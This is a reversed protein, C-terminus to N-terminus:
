QQRYWSTNVSNYEYIIAPGVSLTTVSTGVISQGSNPSITLATVVAGTTITGGGFIQVTTGDLPASPLTLTYTAITSAPNIYTRIIANAITSSTGSTITASSAYAVGGRFSTYQVAGGGSQLTVNNNSDVIIASGNSQSVNNTLYGFTWSKAGATSILSGFAATSNQQSLFTSGSFTLQNSGSSITNATTLTSGATLVQQLTPTSSPFPQPYQKDIRSGTTDAGLNWYSIFTQPNENQMQIPLSSFETPIVIKGTNNITTGTGENLKFNIYPFQVPTGGAALTAIDTSNLAGSFFQMGSLKGSYGAGFSNNYYLGIENFTMGLNNIKVGGTSSETGNLYLHVYEAPDLNVILNYWTGTSMTPVTYVQYATGNMHVEMTTSSVIYIAPSQDGSNSILAQTGTSTLKFWVSFASGGGASNMVINSSPVIKSSTGNFSVSNTYSSLASPVDASWTISTTTGNPTTNAISNQYLSSIEAASLLRKWLGIGKLYGNFGNLPGVGGGNSPHGVNGITFDTGTANVAAPIGSATVFPGNNVSIGVTGATPNYQAVVFYWKNITPTDIGVVTIPNTNKNQVQFLVVQAGNPASAVIGLFYESQNNSSDDDKSIIVQNHSTLSDVNFWATITIPSQNIQLSPNSSTWLGPNQTSVFHQIYQGNQLASTITGTPTLYNQKSPYNPFYNLATTGITIAGSTQQIFTVGKYFYGNTATVRSGAAMNAAINSYSARTLVFPHSGDGVTTVTYIGNNAPIPEQWVLIRQGVTVANNTDVVLAGNNTATIVIGSITNDPLKTATAYDVNTHVIEPLFTNSGDTTSQVTRQGLPTTPVTHINQASAIYASLFAFAIILKKM